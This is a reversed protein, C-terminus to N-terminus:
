DWNFTETKGNLKWKAPFTNQMWDLPEGVPLTQAAMRFCEKIVQKQETGTTGPQASIFLPTGSMAVLKMWQKNKDWSSKAYTGRLRCGYRLLNWATHGQISFYECGNGKNQEM